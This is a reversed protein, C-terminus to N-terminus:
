RRRGLMYIINVLIIGIWTVLILRTTAASSPKAAGRGPDPTL